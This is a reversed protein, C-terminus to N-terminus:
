DKPNVIWEMAEGFTAVWIDTKHSALYGLFAQHTENSISIWQGGVGHFQFVLLGKSQRAKEVLAILDAATTKEDAIFSPVEMRDLTRFDTILGHRSDGGGRAYRVLKSAKLAKKYSQGGVQTNNCPYAYTRFPKGPDLLDLIADTAAVEGMMRDITYGETVLDEPWGLAAPCPHFVSHNGLEHGNRAAAIWAAAEHQGKVSNIYFTGKLGAEDLQPIANSLHTAMGDDYTLCIIVKSPSPQAFACGAGLISFLLPLIPHSM